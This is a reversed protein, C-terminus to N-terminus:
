PAATKCVALDKRANLTLVIGRNDRVTDPVRCYHEDLFDRYIPFDRMTGRDSMQHDLIVRPLTAKLEELLKEQIGPAVRSPDPTWSPPILGAIIMTSTFM